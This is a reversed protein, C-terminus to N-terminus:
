STFLQRQTIDKFYKAYNCLVEIEKLATLLIEKTIVDTNIEFYEDLLRCAIEISDIQQLKDIVQNLEKNDEQLLLSLLKAIILTESEIRTFGLFSSILGKKLAGEEFNLSTLVTALVSQTKKLKIYKIYKKVIPRQYSKLGYMEMFEAVDDIKLIKNAYLLDTLPFHLLERGKPEPTTFYLLVKKNALKNELEHKINFLTHDAKVVVIEEKTWDNIEDLFEKNEDFYFLVKLDNYRQFYDKAKEQLM